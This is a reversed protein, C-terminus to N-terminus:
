SLARRARYARSLLPYIEVLFDRAAEGVADLRHWLKQEVVMRGLVVSISEDFTLKLLEFRGGESDWLDGRMM